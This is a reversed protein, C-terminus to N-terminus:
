VFAGGFFFNIELVIVGFDMLGVDVVECGEVVVGDVAVSFHM